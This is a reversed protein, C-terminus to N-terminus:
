FQQIYPLCYLGQDSPQLTSWSHDFSPIIPLKGSGECRRRSIESLLDQTENANGTIRHIHTNWTLNSTVDVGLYTASIVAELFQRQLRYTCNIPEKDIYWESMQIPPIGHGM